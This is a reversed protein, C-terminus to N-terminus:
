FLKYPQFYVIVPIIAYLVALTIAFLKSFCKTMKMGRTSHVGISRFAADVGHSLHLGLVTISVVYVAVVGPIQFAAVVLNYIDDEIHLIKYKLWFQGMHIIIFILIVSGLIGMNRSVWTSSSNDFKVYKSGAAKRNNLTLVVADIVHIAISAYLVWAIVEIAWFHVLFHSYANYMDHASEVGGWFGIPFYSEPIILILNGALHIILFFATFLGTIAMLNKRAVTTKFLGKQGTM